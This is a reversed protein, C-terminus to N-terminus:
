GDCSEVVKRAREIGHQPAFPLDSQEAEFIPIVAKMRECFPTLDQGFFNAGNWEFEIKHMRARPNDPDIALARDHLAIVKGMYQMGYTDPEMAVYATYLFGELTILEANDPAREHAAAIHEKARELQADRKTKDPAEFSSLILVYAAHYLPVWRETEAQAIREFLAIAETNKGAEWQEFARQMGTEYPSQAHLTAALLWFFLSIM